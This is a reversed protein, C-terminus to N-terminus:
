PTPEISISVKKGSGTRRLMIGAGAYTKNIRKVDAASLLGPHEVTGVVITQRQVVLQFPSDVIRPARARSTLIEMRAENYRLPAVIVSGATDRPVAVPLGVEDILYSITVDFVNDQRDGNAARGKRQAVAVRFLLARGSEDLAPGTAFWASHYEDFQSSGVRAAIAYAHLLAAAPPSILIIPDASDPTPSVEAKTRLNRAEAAVADRAREKTYELLSKGFKADAADAFGAPASFALSTTFQAMAAQNGWTSRAAKATREYTAICWAVVLAQYADYEGSPGRTLLYFDGISKGEYARMMFQGLDVQAPSDWIAPGKDDRADLKAWWDWDPLGTAEIFQEFWRRVGPLLPLARAKQQLDEQLAARLAETYHYAPRRGVSIGADELAVGVIDAARFLANSAASAWTDVVPAGSSHATPPNVM